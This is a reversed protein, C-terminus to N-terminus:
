NLIKAYKCVKCLVSVQLLLLDKSTLKEVEMRKAAYIKKDAVDSRKALFIVTAGFSSHGLVCLLYKFYTFVSESKWPTNM